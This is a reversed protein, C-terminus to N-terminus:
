PDLAIREDPIEAAHARAVAQLLEDQVEGLLDRYTARSQMDAPTGRMHMLLFAAGRAARPLEPDRALGSVDNVIEAGADLAAAAVEAKTTDISIPVRSQRALERVIRETRRREEAADIPQANPRTSEGGVDLIDAGEAALRLGHELPEYAGGDSFSVPPANVIGMLLTRGAPLLTRPLKWDSGRRPSEVREARRMLERASSKGPERELAEALSRAANWVQSVTGLAVEGSRGQVVWLGAQRLGEAVVHAGKPVVAAWGRLNVEAVDRGIVASVQVADAENQIEVMRM